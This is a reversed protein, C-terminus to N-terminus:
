GTKNYCEKKLKEIFNKLDSVGLDGGSRSRVAVTNQQQEKDGVILMYPIKQLQAERIKLNIKERRNDVEVRIDQSLLQDAV